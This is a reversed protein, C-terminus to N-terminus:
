VEPMAARRLEETPDYSQSVIQPCRLCAARGEQQWWLCTPRLRCPPLDDAVIPLVGVIRQALRCHSGDFHQCAQGACPAGFRFIETPLVPGSLALIEETVPLTKELYGVRSEGPREGTMTVVGFVVSGEMEPRASPCSRPSAPGTKESM